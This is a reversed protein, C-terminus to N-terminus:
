IVRNLIVLASAMVRALALHSAHPQGHLSGTFTM